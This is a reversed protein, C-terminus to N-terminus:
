KKKDAAAGNKSKAAAYLATMLKDAEAFQRDFTIEGVFRAVGDGAFEGPALRLAV